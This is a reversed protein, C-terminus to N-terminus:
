RLLAAPWLAVKVTVHIGRAQPVATSPLLWGSPVPSLADAHYTQRSSVTLLLIICKVQAIKTALDLPVLPYDASEVSAERLKGGNERDDQTKNSIVALPLLCQLAHLGTAKQVIKERDWCVDWACTRLGEM